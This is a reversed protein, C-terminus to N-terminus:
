WLLDLINKLLNSDYIFKSLRFRDTTLQMDKVLFEAFANTPNQPDRLFFSFVWFVVFVIAIFFTFYLASGLVGDVVKVLKNQRLLSAFLKLIGIVIFFGIFLIFFAIITICVRGVFAGVANSVDLATQITDNGNNNVIWNAVFKPLNLVNQLIDTLSSDAGIGKDNLKVLVNESVKSAIDPYIFDKEILFDAFRSCYVFSIVLVALFGFLSIVKTLFGKKFGIILFLIGLIVLVIDIVGFFGFDM